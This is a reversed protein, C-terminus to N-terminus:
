WPETNARPSLYSLQIWFSWLQWLLICVRYFGRNKTWTVKGRTAPAGPSRFFICCSTSLLPVLKVGRTTSSSAESVLSSAIAHNSLLILSVCCFPPTFYQASMNAESKYEKHVTQQDKNEDRRWWTSLQQHFLQARSSPILLLFVWIHKQHPGCPLPQERSSLVHAEELLVIISWHSAESTGVFVVECVKFTFNPSPQM